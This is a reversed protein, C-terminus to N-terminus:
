LLLSSPAFAFLNLKIRDNNVKQTKLKIRDKNVKQTKLKIRDNNVKKITHNIKQEFHYRIWM